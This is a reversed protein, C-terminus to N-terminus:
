SKESLSAKRKLPRTPLESQSAQTTVSNLKDDKVSKGSRAPKGRPSSQTVPLDAIFLVSHAWGSYAGFLKRFFEAVAAYTKISLSTARSTTTTTSSFAYDRVAIQWVHTDVPVAESKDLSMLCICDAVKPGVGTLKLLAHRAQSYSLQRMSLLWAEAADGHTVCLYRVTAQIYKARYGFGLERLETELNSRANLNALTPFSYFVRGQYEAVPEGYTECMTEVMQTIRPIHNNSSCIFSLVNEVPPQRLVRLGPFQLGKTRFNADAQSWQQYLNGLKVDLQFYDWLLRRTTDLHTATITPSGQKPHIRFLVTNPTEKLTVLEK